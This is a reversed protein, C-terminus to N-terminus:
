HLRIIPAPAIPVPGLRTAGNKFTLPIDLQTSNGALQAALNLAGEVTDLITPSVQGSARAVAIIERWNVARITITGTPYGLSDVSLNGAANLELDGWKAEALTLDIETPQPRSDEIATRDWARDFTVTVDARLASFSRPLDTGSPLEYAVPPAFEQTQLALRYIAETEPQAHMALNLAAASMQWDLSSSLTLGEVAVNTRELTLATDPRLVLSARMDSSSLTLKESPTSLTQAHPWVAIVHTPRYSLAFLQFFPADWAVSTGPDALTLNTFTTDFRNPFGRTTRNDYEAVWGEARRDEFWIDFGKTLGWYGVLWYGSWIAALVAILVVLRKMM